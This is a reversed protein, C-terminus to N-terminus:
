EDILYEWWLPFKLQANNNKVEHNLFDIDELKDLYHKTKNALLSYNNNAKALLKYHQLKISAASKLKQNTFCSLGVTNENHQRYGTYTDCTFIAKSNSLLLLSFLYWDLAVINNEFEITDIINLKFATNSLGFINKTRIFDIDIISNNEIRNSLYYETSYGNTDFISVDNVVIDALNLKDISTEIRKTDFVDDSDGLIIIDYSAKKIFRILFERNKAPTNSYELEVINLNPYKSIYKDISGYNDNLVFLDFENYSQNNLSEFFDNIYSDPMPYFTTAFAIPSKKKFQVMNDLLSKPLPVLSQSM